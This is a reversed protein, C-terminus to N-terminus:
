IRALMPFNWPFCTEGSLSEGAKVPRARVLRPTCRKGFVWKGSGKIPLADPLSWLHHEIAWGSLCLSGRARRLQGGHRCAREAPAGALSADLHGAHLVWLPTKSPKSTVVVQSSATRWGGARLQGLSGM